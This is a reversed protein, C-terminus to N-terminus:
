SYMHSVYLCYIIGYVYAIYLDSFFLVPETFTMRLPRYLTIIALQSLSVQADKEEGHSRIHKNGTM